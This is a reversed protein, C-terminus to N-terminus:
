FSSLAEDVTNYVDFLHNFRVLEFIDRVRDSAGALKVDGGKSNLKRLCSLIAGLGSSDIFDVASLDIVLSDNEELVPSVLRRFDKAKAADLRQENVNVVAVGEKHEFLITM